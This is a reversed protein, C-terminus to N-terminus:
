GQASLTAQRCPLFPPQLLLPRRPAEAAALAPQQRRGCWHVGLCALSSCQLLLGPPAQPVPILYDPPQSPGQGAVPGVGCCGVQWARTKEQPFCSPPGEAVLALVAAQSYAVLAWTAYALHRPCCQPSAASTCAALPPQARRM